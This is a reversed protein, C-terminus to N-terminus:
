DTKDRKIFFVPLLALAIVTTLLSIIAGLKFSTPAFTFKVLHNGKPLTLARQNINAPLIESEKGDVFAKWGPYYADALVLIGEENMKAKIEVNQDEYKTIQAESSAQLFSKNELNKELIATTKYGFKSSTIERIQDKTTQAVEYNSVIFVRPLVTKNEYIFYPPQSQTKFVSDLDRASVEFPSIIYKVNQLDLLSRAANDIIFKNNTLHSNQEIFSSLIIDREFSIPSYSSAQNIGFIVNWNPDLAERFAFYSDEARLWGRNLFQENWVNENGLSLIRYLSKDKELFGATEPKQLWKESNGRLHYNLAFIFINVTSISLILFTGLHWFFKNTIKSKLNQLFFEFGITGLISLSFTFFIIWRAPVRFFSLPPLKFLFFTPSNKGLMLLLSLILLLSFFLIIKNKGIGWIIAWSAFILPLIGIFGTSEWFIGWDKSFQPYTGIRPDGLLYPWVFTILHKFQYPFLKIEEIGVGGKRNSMQTLEWSPLLQIASILLGGMIAAIIGLILRWRYFRPEGVLFIRTFAYLVLVILSYLVVQYFGALTQFGIAFALLVGLFSRKKQIYIETLYLEMPFFALTQIVNFHVIQTVFIGSYSFSIAGLLSAIKSLGMSRTFLYTFTGIILFSLAFGLNFALPMPFLFFIILNLPNFYGNITAIQPYGNTILSNWLPLHGNKLSESLFLKTPYEYHLIDSRGFDPTVFIQQGTLTKNFFIVVLIALIFIPLLKLIFKM